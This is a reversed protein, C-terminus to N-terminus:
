RYRAGEGTGLPEWQSAGYGVHNVKGRVVQGV